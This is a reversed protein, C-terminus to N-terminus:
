AETALRWKRFGVFSLQQKSGKLAGIRVWTEWGREVMRWAMRWIVVIMGDRMASDASWTRESTRKFGEGYVGM